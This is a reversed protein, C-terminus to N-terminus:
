GDGWSWATSQSSSALDHQAGMNHGMEHINSYSTICGSYIASYGYPAFSASNTSM